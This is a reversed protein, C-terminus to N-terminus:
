QSLLLAQQTAVGGANAQLADIALAGLVLLILSSTVTGLAVVRSRSLAAGMRRALAHALPAQGIALSVIVLLLGAEVVVGPAEAVMLLGACVEVSVLSAALTGAVIVLSVTASAQTQTGENKGGLFTM